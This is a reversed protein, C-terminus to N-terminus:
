INKERLQTKLDSNSPQGLLKCFIDASAQTIKHLIKDSM